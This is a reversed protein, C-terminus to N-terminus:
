PEIVDVHDKYENMPDPALSHIGEVICPPHHICVGRGLVGYLSRTYAQYLYFRRSAQVQKREAVTGEVPEGEYRDNFLDVITSKDLKWVCWDRGCKEFFTDIDSM